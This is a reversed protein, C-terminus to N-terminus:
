RKASQSRWCLLWVVLGLASHVGVAVNAAALIGGRPIWYFNLLVAVVLAVAIAILVQHQRRWAGLVVGVLMTVSAGPLAWVIRDLVPVVPDYEPGLVLDVLPQRVVWLGIATAGGVLLGAVAALSGDRWPRQPGGDGPNARRAFTPYVATALLQPAAFLGWTPVAASGYFGIEANAVGCAAMVWADHRLLLQLALGVGLFATGQRLLEGPLPPTADQGPLRRVHPLLWLMGLGAGTALAPGVSWAAAGGTTAFGLLILGSTMEICRARVEVDMRDHGKFIAGRTSMAVRLLAYPLFGLLAARLDDDRVLLAAVAAIPVSVLAFRQQLRLSAALLAASEERRRAAERILLELQGLALVRVAVMGATSAVTFVGMGAAGMGRAVMVAALLYGGKVVLEGVVLWILNRRLRRWLPRRPPAADPSPGSSSTV